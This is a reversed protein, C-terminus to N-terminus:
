TVEEIPIAKKKKRLSPVIISLLLLLSATMGVAAIPRNFFIMFSGDSILLSHRLSNEFMPGLVFALVLPAAEYNYKRMLYGFVGFVLMLGTDFISNKVSYAGILCIFLIVPFLIKYPIKLVQVWIGILPLNLVLLMANGLYMSAVVSWFIEPNNKMMLPGPTVGHIVLAGLLIAMVVNSPIGLTFLPIFSGGAGANNAAEPGAVGEIAGSGFKEPHRSVKKEIAYSTFSAIVAGGGPLIGLLFGLGSGRLIPKISDKWDQWNPFLGRIKTDLISRKDMGTEINWFVESIGFLGMILPVLDFGDALESIGFAFRLSGSEPDQGACGLIVGFAAMMLARIMSGSTLYIVFTLGMCLFSFFEPPGIRLAFSALLPGLFMLGIVSCTGAIFSGFAAIGLAPGARGKRAMQYGDLCTVVSAAEGPINVLISTTSGGYMAGYYIGGLMIIAQIPSAKFTLPFLLSMTGVPGIGPLVGIMTGIFVGIFCYLFNIPEFVVSFGMFINQLIEM